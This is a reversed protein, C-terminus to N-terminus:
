CNKAQCSSGRRNRVETCCKNRNSCIPLGTCNPPVASRCQASTLCSAAQAALPAVVSNVAPLLLTLGAATGLARLAERRSILKRAAPAEYEALLGARDLGDLTLWVLDEDRPLDAEPLLEALAEVSTKGDSRSWVLAAARNLCHAEHTALDYVM